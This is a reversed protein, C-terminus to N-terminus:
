TKVLWSVQDSQQPPQPTDESDSTHEKLLSQFMLQFASISDVSNGDTSPSDQKKDESSMELLSAGLLAPPAAM